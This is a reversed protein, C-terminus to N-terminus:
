PECGSGRAPGAASTTLFYLFTYFRSYQSEDGGSDKSKNAHLNDRRRSCVGLVVIIVLLRLDRDTPADSRREDVCLPFIVRQHTQSTEDDVPLGIAIATMARVWGILIQGRIVGIEEAERSGPLVVRRGVQSASLVKTRDTRSDHLVRGTEQVSARTEARIDNTAIECGIVGAIRFSAIIQGGEHRDHPGSVIEVLKVQVAGVDYSVITILKRYVTGHELHHGPRQMRIHGITLQLRDPRIQACYRAISM